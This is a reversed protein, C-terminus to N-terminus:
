AIMKRKGTKEQADYVPLSIGFIELAQAGARALQEGHEVHFSPVGKALRDGLIDTIPSSRFIDARKSYKANSRSRVEGFFCRRLM